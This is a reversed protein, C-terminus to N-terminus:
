RQFLFAKLVGALLECSKPRHLSLTSTSTTVSTIKKQGKKIPYHWWRFGYNVIGIPSFHRGSQSRILNSLVQNCCAKCWSTLITCKWAHKTVKEHCIYGKSGGQRQVKKRSSYTSSTCILIAKVKKDTQSWSSHPCQYKSLWLKLALSKRNHRWAQSIWHLVNGKLVSWHARDLEGESYLLRSRSKIPNFLM